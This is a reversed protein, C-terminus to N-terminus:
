GKSKRQDRSEFKGGKQRTLTGMKIRRQRDMWYSDPVRRQRQNLWWVLQSEAILVLNGIRIFPLGPEDYRAEMLSRRKIGLKAAMQAATYLEDLSKFDPYDGSNPLAM